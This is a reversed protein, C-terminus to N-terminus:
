IFNVFAFPSPRTGYVYGLLCFGHTNEVTEVEDSALQIDGVPQQIFHLRSSEDPARNDQFFSAYSKNGKFATDKNNESGTANADEGPQDTTQKDNSM